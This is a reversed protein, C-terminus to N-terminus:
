RFCELRTTWHHGPDHQASGSASRSRKSGAARNRSRYSGKFIWIVVSLICAIFFMVTYWPIATQSYPGFVATTNTSFYGLLQDWIPKTHKMQFHYASEGFYHNVFEVVIPTHHATEQAHEGAEATEALFM